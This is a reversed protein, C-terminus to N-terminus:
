EGSQLWNNSLFAFDLSNVSSDRNLDALADSTSWKGNMYSFDLSNILQDDNFDGAPLTPFSVDLVTTNRLDVGSQIKSLYGSVVARMAVTPLLGAPVDVTHRGLTDTTISAQYLKNGLNSPDLFEVTGSVDRGSSPAGEPVLVIRRQVSLSFIPTTASVASSQSSVNGANDVASVRYSYATNASLATDLYATSATTGVQVGDRFVRYSAVGSVAQGSGAPDTSDNWSVQIQSESTPTASLGSPVSPATTDPLSNTTFTSDSSMALNGASDRSKVRFHYTAAPSLGSVTASHSTLLSPNRTTQSGYSTTAGYEVQTDSAENTNWSVTAGSTTVGSVAVSSITPPTTDPPAQTTFTNDGSTSLNGAADRSKVRYHYLTSASLGSLTASHSTVLSSNLATQSGYSTTAGYEVQTDSAENTNWSVTAGSTTVGSSSISSITPPTTDLAVGTYSGSGVSALLDGGLGAVNSDTGSGLSFDFTASSSGASIARFTVTAVTGSGSYTSGPTAIQSFQITGATNDINNIITLAMLSGPSIQVGSTGADADVVQLVAPNFRLKNVDVGYASQGGTNLLINVTFTNNVNVSTSSPSLSLVASPTVQAVQASPLGSVSTQLAILIATLSSVIQQLTQM